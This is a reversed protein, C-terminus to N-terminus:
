TVKFSLLATVRVPCAPFHSIGHRVRRHARAGLPGTWPAPNHPAVLFVYQLLPPPRLIAPFMGQDNRELASPETCCVEFCVHGRPDNGEKSRAYHHNFFTCRISSHIFLYGSTHLHLNLLFRPLRSAARLPTRFLSFSTRQVFADWKVAPWPSVHGQRKSHAEEQHAATPRSMEYWTQQNSGGPESIGPMYFRSRLSQVNLTPAGHVLVQPHRADVSSFRCLWLSGSANRLAFRSM